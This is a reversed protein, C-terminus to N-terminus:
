NGLAHITAFFEGKQPTGDAARLSYRVRLQMVPKLSPIDLFVGHGDESLHGRGVELADRGEINPRITSFEKSGYQAGYHYNWAEAAWNDSNEAIEKDLSETFRLKIGGAVAHFEVPMYVKEGTYRVRQLSGDRAARTQWGRTGAVYLQGDSPRFRARHAGSAFDLKMPAVGGQWGGAVEERLVLMMSCQGFSFNLLQGEFPGWRHGSVWAQGGTSNDVSRPMYCLPLDYGLSREPTVKPGGFGYYGGPRVSVINSAPTWEGEQPAVTITGDPGVSMGNPNRFGTALTEAKTGDPSIRVLGHGSVFYFNGAPDTELCTIYDHGAATTPLLSSFNEYSDAEGDGDLDVLRTIRDRGLVYVQDKVIRLGLAQYLGTAFRRWTLKELTADIGGVRWVDGHITCVAADGNSFFDVGSIFFLAKWPNEYPVTLTDVVYPGKERGVQGRTEIPTWRPPGPKLLASLDDPGGGAKAPERNDQAAIAMSVTLRSPSSAPPFKWVLGGGQSSLGGDGTLTTVGPEGGKKLSLTREKDHPGLEITRIFGTGERRATEQVSTGEVDYSFVVRNGHLHLGRYAVPADWASGEASAWVLEGAIKPKEILGYRAPSFTLFKGTWAARLACTDPDFTFGGDETKVSIARLLVTGGPLKLASTIFPGVDTLNWRSDVWEKETQKGPDDKSEQLQPDPAGLEVPLVSDGFSQGPPIGPSLSRVCPVSGPSCPDEPLGFSRFSLMLVLWLVHALRNM